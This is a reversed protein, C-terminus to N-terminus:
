RASFVRMVLGVGASWETRDLPAEEGRALGGSVRVWVPQDNLAIFLREVSAEAEARFRPEVGPAYSWGARGSARLVWAGSETEYGADLLLSTFPTLEHEIGESTHRLTHSAAPGVGLWARVTNSRVPDLLLAARGTELTWDSSEPFDREWHAARLALSLDFPFPIRVPRATPLLIFGEELHRRLLGDYLTFAGSKREPDLAAEFTLLRHANLWPTGKSRSNTRTRLLIGASLVSTSEGPRGSLGASLLLGNGPDFCVPFSRGQEDVQTCDAAAAVAPAAALMLALGLALM